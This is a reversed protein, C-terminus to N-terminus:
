FPMPGGKTAHDRIKQAAIARQEPTLIPLIKQAIDIARTTGETAKARIDVQPLDKEASFDAAKFREMTDGAHAHAKMAERMHDGGGKQFEAKFVDKIQSRQDDTLKLDDALQRMHGFRGWAREAHPAEGNAPAPAAAGQEDRAGEANGKAAHDHHGWKGHDAHMKDKMAAVFAERQTGDLLDHLRQFAARDQPRVQEVASVMADIKPQLTTRDIAGAQVQDAVATMLETQAKRAAEHRVEADSAMKEIETRQEPRLPVQSLAEGVMKVPGHANVAVPAIQGQAQTAPAPAEQGTGSCGALALASSLLVTSFGTRFFNM